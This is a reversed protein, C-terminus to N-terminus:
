RRRWPAFGGWPLPAQEEAQQLAAVEGGDGVVGAMEAVGRQEGIVGRWGGDGDVRGGGDGDQLVGAPGGALWLAGHEGVGVQGRVAPLHAGVPGAGTGALFAGQGHQREEVHEGHGRDHVVADGDAGFDDHQRAELQFLGQGDEGGPADGDEVGDGGDVAGDVGGGGGPREPQARDLEADGAACGQRLLHAGAEDFEGAAFQNFAVAEGFGGGDDGAVRGVAHDLAAGDADRHGAGDDVDAVRGVRVPQQPLALAALDADAAGLHHGAIPAARGVGLGDEAVAGQAGPVDAVQVLVAVQEQDVADLVDDEAAAVVDIRPDELFREVFVRGHELRRDDAHGIGIAALRRLGEDHQAGAVGGGAVGRRSNRM